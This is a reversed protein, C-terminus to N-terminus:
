RRPVLRFAIFGPAANLRAYEDPNVTEADPTPRPEVLRDILFGADSIEACTTELPTLWYRLHWGRSWTEEIVRTDFYNGGDSLWDATPHQRSLILAGSPALVRHLEKLARVRDDVYELALALLALDFDGDELWELPDALDHVRFEGSPVRERCLEIMRPSQDFGVVRAGRNVLEEAYLGPGCAADLVRLGRVDGLLDLCAPRDYHANYLGNSAHELFEDAFVEYQSDRGIRPDESRQSGRPSTDDM